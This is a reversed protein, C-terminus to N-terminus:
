QPKSHEWTLVGRTTPANPLEPSPQWPSTIILRDGDFRYFRVQDTGNWAPDWAADVSTIFKGEEFRCIGTYALMTQHLAKFDDNKQPTKRGEGELLAMMRGESTFIIFGKGPYRRRECTDQYEVEFSVLQWVGLLKAKYDHPAEALAM